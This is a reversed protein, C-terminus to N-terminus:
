TCWQMSHKLMWALFGVFSFNPRCCILGITWSDIKCIHTATVCKKGSTDGDDNWQQLLSRRPLLLSNYSKTSLSNLLTNLFCTVLIGTNGFKTVLALSVIHKTVKQTMLSCSFTCMVKLGVPTFISFILLLKLFLWKVCKDPSECQRPHHITKFVVKVAPTEVVGIKSHDM